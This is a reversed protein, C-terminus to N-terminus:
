CDSMNNELVTNVQVSNIYDTDEQVNNLNKVTYVGIQRLANIWGEKKEVFFDYTIGQKTMVTLVNNSLFSTNFDKNYLFIDNVSIYEVIGTLSNVFILRENTLVLRGETNLGMAEMKDANEDLIVNESQHLFNYM